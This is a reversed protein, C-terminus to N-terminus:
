HFKSIICKMCTDSKTSNYASGGQLNLFFNIELMNSRCTRALSSSDYHYFDEHLCLQAGNEHILLEMNMTPFKNIIKLVEHKAKM